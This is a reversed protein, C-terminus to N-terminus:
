IHVTSVCCPRERCLHPMECCSATARRLDRWVAQRHRHAALCLCLCLCLCVCVCLALCCVCLSWLGRVVSGESRTQM